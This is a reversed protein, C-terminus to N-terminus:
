IYRNSKVNVRFVSYYRVMVGPPTPYLSSVVVTSTTSSGLTLVRRTQPCQFVPAPKLSVVVKWESSRHFLNTVNNINEVNYIM